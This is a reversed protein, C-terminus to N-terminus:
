VRCGVNERDLRTASQVLDLCDALKQSLLKRFAFRVHSEMALVRSLNGIIVQNLVTGREQVCLILHEGHTGVACVGSNNDVHNLGESTFGRLSYQDVWVATLNEVAFRLLPRIRGRCFGLEDLQCPLPFRITAINDSPAASHVWRENFRDPLKCIFDVLFSPLLSLQWCGCLM